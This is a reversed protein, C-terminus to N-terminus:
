RDNAKIRRRSIIPCQPCDSVVIVPATGVTSNFYTLARSCTYSTLVKNNCRPDTLTKNVLLSVNKYLNYMKYQIMDIKKYILSVIISGEARNSDM